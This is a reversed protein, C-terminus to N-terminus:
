AVYSSRYRHAQPTMQWDGWRTTIGWSGMGGGPEFEFPLNVLIPVYIQGNDTFYGPNLADGGSYSGTWQSGVIPATSDLVKTFTYPSPQPQSPSITVPDSANTIQVFIACWLVGLVYLM